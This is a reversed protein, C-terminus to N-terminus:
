QSVERTDSKLEKELELKSTSAEEDRATAEALAERVSSLSAKLRESESVVESVTSNQKVAEQLESKLSRHLTLSSLFTYTSYLLRQEGRM